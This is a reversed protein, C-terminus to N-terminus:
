VRSACIAYSAEGATVFTNATCNFPAVSSRIEVGFCVNLAPVTITVQFLLFTHLTYYLTNCKFSSIPRHRTTNNLGTHRIFDPLRCGGDDFCSPKRNGIHHADDYSANLCFFREWDIKELWVCLCYLCHTLRFFAFKRAGRKVTNSRHYSVLSVFLLRGPFRGALMRSM